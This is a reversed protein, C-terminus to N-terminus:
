TDFYDSCVRDEQQQLLSCRARRSQTLLDISNGSSEHPNGCPDASVPVNFNSRAPTALMLKMTSVTMAPLAHLAAWGAALGSDM